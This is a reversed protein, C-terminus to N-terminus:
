TTGRLQGLFPEEDGAGWKGQAVHCHHGQRPLAENTSIEREGKARAVCAADVFVRTQWRLLLLRSGPPSAGVWQPVDPRPYQLHQPYWADHGHRDELVELVFEAKVSKGVADAARQLTADGFPAGKVAFVLLDEERLAMIGAALRQGIEGDSVAEADGNGALRERVAEIMEPQGAAAPFM